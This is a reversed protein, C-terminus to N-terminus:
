PSSAARRHATRWQRPGGALASSSSTNVIVGGGALDHASDRKCGLMVGRLNVAFTRDWVEVRGDAVAADSGQADPGLAAANNHLIDLHGYRDVATAVLEAVSEEVSVDTYLRLAGAKTSYGRVVNEAEAINVDGIVVAAGDSALRAATAAGIGTAAGTVIAVRGDLRGM